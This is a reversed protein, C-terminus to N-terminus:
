RANPTQGKRRSPECRSGTHERDLSPEIRARDAAINPRREDTLGGKAERAL